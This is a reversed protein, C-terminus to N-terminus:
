KFGDNDVSMMPNSSFVAPNLQPATFGFGKLASPNNFQYKEILLVMDCFGNGDKNQTVGTPPAVLTDIQRVEGPIASPIARGKADTLELEINNLQQATINTFYPSKELVYSVSGDRANFRPIKALLSSNVM